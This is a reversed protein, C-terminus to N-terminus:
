LESVAELADDESKKRAESQSVGRRLGELTGELETARALSAEDFACLSWCVRRARM